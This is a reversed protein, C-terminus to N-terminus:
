DVMKKYREIKSLHEKGNQEYIDDLINNVLQKRIGNSYNEELMIKVQNSELCLIVLLSAATTEELDFEEAFDGAKALLDYNTEKELPKKITKIKVLYDRYIGVDDLFKKAEGEVASCAYFLDFPQYERGFGPSISEMFTLIKQVEKSNLFM